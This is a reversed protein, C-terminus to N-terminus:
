LCSRDGPINRLEETAEVRTRTGRCGSRPRFEDSFDVKTPLSFFAAAEERIAAAEDLLSETMEDSKEGFPSHHDLDITKRCQERTDDHHQECTWPARSNRSM